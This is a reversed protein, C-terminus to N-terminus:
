CDDQTVKLSLCFKKRRIKQITKKKTKQITMKKKKVKKLKIFKIINITTCGYDCCLKAVNGDWVGLGDWEGSGIEKPLWLNKM